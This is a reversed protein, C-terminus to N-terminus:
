SGRRGGRGRPATSAAGTATRRASTPCRCCCRPMGSAGAAHWGVSLTALTNGHFSPRRGIVKWRQPQGREVWYQRVFKIVSENAESGGSAFFVQDLDGPLVSAVLDALQQAPPAEFRMAHLYPLTGAQERMADVVESASYGICTVGVGSAADLYHRGDGDILEVGEGRVFVPAQTRLDPGILHQSVPASM